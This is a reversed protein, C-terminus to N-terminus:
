RPIGWKTSRAGRFDRVGQFPFRFTPTRNRDNCPGAVVQDSSTRRALSRREDPALRVSGPIRLPLAEYANAKRTDM